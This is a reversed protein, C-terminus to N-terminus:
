GDRRSDTVNAARAIVVSLCFRCGFRGGHGQERISFDNSNVWIIDSKLVQQQSFQSTKPYM